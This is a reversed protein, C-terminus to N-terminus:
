AQVESRIQALMARTEAKLRDIDNQYDEIRTDAAEMEEFIQQIAARLEAVEESTPEVTSTNEMM